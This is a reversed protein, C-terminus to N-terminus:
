DKLPNKKKDRADSVSVGIAAIVVCAVACLGRIGIREGLLVAGVAAAVAPETSVLIGYTASSLRKLAEFELTFPIATSLVAISLGIFLVTPDLLKDLPVTSIVPLMLVAAITMGILLGSNGQLSTSVRRSLLAFMGWGVGSMLAYTIGVPDLEAGTLPTLLVIGSAALLVWGLHSVKRSTFASVALPGSIEIAVAVGLPIREIAQYFCYNMAAMCVGFVLLLQWHRCATRLLEVSPRIGSFLWLLFASFLLRMAVTGDAGIIPFLRVSVGAGLHIAVIALFLLAHPPVREFRTGGSEHLGSENFEPKNM